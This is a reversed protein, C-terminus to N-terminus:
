KMKGEFAGLGTSKLFGSQLCDQWYTFVSHKKDRSVQIQVVRPNEGEEPNESKVIMVNAMKSIVKNKLSQGKGNNEKEEKEEDKDKKKKKDKKDKKDKKEEKEKKDAKEEKEKKVEEAKEAEEPKKNLLDIKFDKYHLIMSGSAQNRHLVLNFTGHHVIGSKIQFSYAPVLMPNLVTLDGTGFSGNITHYCNPDLLNFRMHARIAGKGMISFNIHSVAPSKASMRNRDNTINRVMWNLNYLSIHGPGTGTEEIGDFRYQMNRVEAKGVWFGRKLNRILDHPLIKEGKSPFNKEDKYGKMKPSQFLVQGIAIDGNVSYAHFNVKRFIALPMRMQLWTTSQGARRAMANPSYLPVLRIDKINVERNDSIAVFEGTKLRYNGGPLLFNMQGIKVLITEAFYARKPDAFALSDLQINTAQLDIRNVSTTFYKQPYTKNYTITGNEVSIKSIKLGLLPKELYKYFPKEESTDRRMQDLHLVPSELRIGDLKLPKGLYAGLFNIGSLKLREARFILLREALEPAQQKKLAQWKAYDPVLSLSDMELSGALLSADVNGLHLTYLGKSRSTVEKELRHEIWESFCSGAVLLGILLVVVLGAGALLWNKYKGIRNNIV